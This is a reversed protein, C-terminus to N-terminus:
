DAGNGEVDVGLSGAIARCLRDVQEDVQREWEDPDMYKTKPLTDMFTKADPKKEKWYLAQLMEIAAAAEREHKVPIPTRRQFRASNFDLIAEGDNFWIQGDSRRSGLRGTNPHPYYQERETIGKMHEGTLGYRACAEIIKNKIEDNNAQTEEDGKSNLLGIDELAGIVHNAVSGLFTDQPTEATKANRATKGYRLSAEYLHTLDAEPGTVRDSELRRREGMEHGLGYYRPVYPAAPEKEEDSVVAPVGARLAEVAVRAGLTTALKTRDSPNWRGLGGLSSTRGLGLNISGGGAGLPYGRGSAPILGSSLPSGYTPVRWRGAGHYEPGGTLQNRLEGENLLGHTQVRNNTPLAEAEDATTAPDAGSLSPGQGMLASREAALREEEDLIRLFQRAGWATTGHPPLLPNRWDFM